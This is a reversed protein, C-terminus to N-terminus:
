LAVALPVILGAGGPILGVKRAVRSLTYTQCQSSQENTVM